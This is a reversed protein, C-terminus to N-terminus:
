CEVCNINIVLEVLSLSDIFVLLIDSALEEIVLLFEWGSDDFDKLAHFLTLLYFAQNLWRVKQVEVLSELHLVRSDILVFDELCVNRKV